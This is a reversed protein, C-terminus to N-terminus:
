DDTEKGEEKLKEILEKTLAEQEKRDRGAVKKLAPYQKKLETVLWRATPAQNPGDESEHWEFRKLAFQLHEYKLHLPTKSM